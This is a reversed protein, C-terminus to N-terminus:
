VFVLRNNFEVTIAEQGLRVRLSEAYAKVAKRDKRSLRATFAYVITIQEIVLTGDQAVWFGSVPNATAGGFRESLFTGAEKVLTEHQTADLQKNVDTTSPVYIAVQNGLGEGQFWKLINM